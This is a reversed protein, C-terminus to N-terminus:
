KFIFFNAVIFNQFARQIQEQSFSLVILRLHLFFVEPRYCLCRPLWATASRTATNELKPNLRSEMKYVYVTSWMRAWKWSACFEVQASVKSVYSYRLPPLEQVASTPLSQYQSGVSFVPTYNDMVGLLKHVPYFVNMLKWLVGVHKPVWIGGNALRFM